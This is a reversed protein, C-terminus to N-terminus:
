GLSATGEPRQPASGDGRAPTVDPSGPQQAKASGNSVPHTPAQHADTMAALGRVPSGLAHVKYAQLQRQSPISKTLEGSSDRFEIVVLGLAPELRLAPNAYIPAAAASGAGSSGGSASEKSDPAPDGTTLAPAIGQISIDSRM